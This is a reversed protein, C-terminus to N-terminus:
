TLSMDHSKKSKELRRYHRRDAGSAKRRQEDSVGLVDVPHSTLHWRGCGCTYAATPVTETQPNRRIEDLRLLAARQTAFSAKGPTPCSPM